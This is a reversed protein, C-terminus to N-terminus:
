ILIKWRRIKFKPFAAKSYIVLSGSFANDEASREVHQGQCWGRSIWSQNSISMQNRWDQKIILLVFDSFKVKMTCLLPLLLSLRGKFLRTFLKHLHVSESSHNDQNGDCFHTRWDVILAVLFEKSKSAVVSFLPISFCWLIARRLLLVHIYSNRHACELM